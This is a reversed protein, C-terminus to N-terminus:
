SILNERSLLWSIEIVKYRIMLGTTKKTGRALREKMNGPYFGSKSTTSEGGSSWLDPIM